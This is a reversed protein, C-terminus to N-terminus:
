GGLIGLTATGLGRQFKAHSSNDKAWQQRQADTQLAGGLQAGQQSSEAGLFQGAMGGGVQSELNAAQMGAGLNAQEMGFQQANGQLQYNANAQELGARNQLGQQAADRAAAERQAQLGAASQDAAGVGARIQAAQAVNAAQQAAAAQDQASLGTRIDAAGQLADSRTSAAAGLGTQRIGAANAIADNRMSNLQNAEQARVVQQDLNAQANASQAGALAQRVAGAGRGAAIGLAQRQTRETSANFAKDAASQYESAANRAYGELEGASTNGAHEMLNASRTGEDELRSAGNQIAGRGAKYDSMWNNNELSQANGLIGQRGSEYAALSKDASGGYREEKDLQKLRESENQGLTEQTAKWYEAREDSVNQHAANTARQFQDRESYAQKVGDYALGEGYDISRENRRALERAKAESGGYHQAIPKQKDAQKKRRKKGRDIIKGM